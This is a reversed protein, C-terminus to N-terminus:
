QAHNGRSSGLGDRRPRESVNVNPKILPRKPLPPIMELVITAHIRMMHYGVSYILMSDLKFDQLM